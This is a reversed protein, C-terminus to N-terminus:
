EDPEPNEIIEPPFDKPQLWVDRCEGFNCQIPKM